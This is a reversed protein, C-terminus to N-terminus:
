SGGTADVGILASLGDTHPGRSCATFLQNEAFIAWYHARRQEMRKPDVWGTWSEHSANEIRPRAATVVAHRAPSPRRVWPPAIRRKSRM